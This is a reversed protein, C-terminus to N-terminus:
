LKGKKIIAVLLWLGMIAAALFGIIGILSIGYFLPPTKSIVILASGIILAAIIIAFSVRNSIQDHTHLMKEMNKLELMFTLKKQRITRTIELLDKPFEQIFDLYQAVISLADSSLRRPSFRSLKVQKIFPEAHAIMDFDPDLELGVGEVTSIAKMMLFIEPPIRMRHQAALELMNQLLKGVHIDKLPRYLHEGMFDAVDKGLLRMDPEEDWLTLKLLVRTTRPEDRRVVADVLEVFAERTAREVSGMMGFDLLCIVNKPLVFLNGPHPDAHFFGHEFIQTLLIDAGRRTILKRDYGNDDLRDLLSVKVGDIFETTLVRETTAERYVKPIYVTDDHLFSRAVREMSTAELTYNMEKEISRAFEEVIKVPRHHALEEIHREALTALHLMIELDVEVIKRIGPRQVKVAVEEGDKLRARHVQGISASALPEPDLYDFLSDVPQGTEDRIIRTVDSFPFSPVKDQLKALERVFDVPVLDPRTSLIQGLKIYTPGLEEIAMRVRVARSLREMREKRNRSIVQLGIEIYQDIKLLEIIDEFGYKFFVGLIQRYRNLNRYTRGFVGIKRISIM